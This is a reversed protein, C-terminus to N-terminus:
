PVLTEMIGRYIGTIPHDPYHLVFLGSSALMMLEDSHPIVAAV